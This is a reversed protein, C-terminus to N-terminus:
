RHKAEIAALGKDIAERTLVRGSHVVAEIDFLAGVDDLPNSRLLVLDARAGAVVGYPEGTGFHAHVSTTGARLVELPSLGCEVLAACERRMSFGPVAFPQPADTGLLLPVGGDHLAKVAARRHAAIKPGVGEPLGGKYQDLLIEWFDVLERSMYKVEWVEARVDDGARASYSIGVTAMTPVVASGAAQIRAAVGPLLAHDVEEAIVVPPIGSGYQELLATSLAAEIVNDLQGITAQGRALATDLGVFDSVHGGWRLGAEAAAECLADYVEPRLGEHVSLHAYGAAAHAAVQQRADDASRTAGGHLAPSGVILRPGVLDGAEVERALDLQSAEGLMGRVTTVGNALYLFLVDEAVERGQAAVPLNGYMETLGPVLVAGRAQLVEAGDEPLLAAASGVATVRGEEIRVTRFPELRGEAVDLVTAGVVFLPPAAPEEAQALSPAVLLSALLLRLSARALSRDMGGLRADPRGTDM